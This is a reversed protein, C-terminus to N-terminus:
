APTLTAGRISLEVALAFRPTSTEKDPLLNPGGVEALDYVVAGRWGPMALTLARVVTMLDAASDETAGWCHVDLRPRDTVRDLQTGGIREARVFRAPRPNPIRTGVHVPDGRAVLQERLYRTYVEAADPFAIAAPM